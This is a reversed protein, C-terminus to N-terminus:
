AWSISASCPRQTGGMWKESLWAFKELLPTCVRYDNLWEETFDLLRMEEHDLWASECKWWTDDNLM